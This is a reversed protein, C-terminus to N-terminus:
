CVFNQLLHKLKTSPIQPKYAVNPNWTLRQLPARSGLGWVKFGIFGLYHNGNEKGNDWCIGLPYRHIGYDKLKGRHLSCRSIIPESPYFTSAQFFMIQSGQYNEYLARAYFFFYVLVTNRNFSGRSRSRAAATSM